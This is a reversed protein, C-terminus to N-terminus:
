LYPTCHKKSMLCTYSGPQPCDEPAQCACAEILVCDGDYCGKDNVRPVQGAPCKPTGRECVVHKPACDVSGQPVDAQCSGQREVSVGASAAGCANSYTLGDCGCVPAVDATCANPRPKCVGGRDTAGCDSGAPFDCFQDGPCPPLGRSGCTTGSSTVPVCEPIPPCPARICQVEKLECREGQACQLDCRVSGGKGAEGSGAVPGGPGPDKVGADDEVGGSGAAPV